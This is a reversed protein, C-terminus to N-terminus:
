DIMNIIIKFLWIENTRDLTIKSYNFKSVNFNETTRWCREEMEKKWSYILNLFFEEPTLIIPNKFYRRRTKKKKFQKFRQIHALGDFHWITPAGIYRLGLSDTPPPPPLNGLASNNHRWLIVCWISSIGCEM